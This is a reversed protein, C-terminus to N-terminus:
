AGAGLDVSLPESQATVYVINNDLCTLYHSSCSVLTTQHGQSKVKFSFTTDSDRTVHAVETGIKTKRPITNYPISPNLTGSSVTYTM